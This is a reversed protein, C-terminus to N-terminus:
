AAVADVIEGAIGDADVPETPQLFGSELGLGAFRARMEKFRALGSPPKRDKRLRVVFLPDRLMQRLSANLTKQREVPRHVMPGVMALGRQLQGQEGSVQKDVDGRVLADSGDFYWPDQRDHTLAFGDGRKFIRFDFTEAGRHLRSIALRM